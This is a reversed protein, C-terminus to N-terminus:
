LEFKIDTLKSSRAYPLSDCPKLDWIEKWFALPSHPDNGEHFMLIDDIFDEPMQAKSCLVFVTAAHLREALQHTEPM